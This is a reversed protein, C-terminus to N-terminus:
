ATESAPWEAAPLTVAGGTNPTQQEARDIQRRWAILCLAWVALLPVLSRRGQLGAKEGLNWAAHPLHHGRLWHIVAEKELFSQHNLSLDGELFAPLQLMTVPNDFRTPPQATTSVAILSVAVGYAALAVIVARTIRGAWSWLPALLLVFFPLSAGMQRPGFSWSGDWYFYSANLLLYYGAVIVAVAIIRRHQAARLGLLIGAPVLCLVPALPLLGRYRGILLTRLIAIHPYTIGMFGVKMGDFGVVSEYGLRFPAGFAVTDYALLLIAPLLAGGVVGAITTLFARRGGRWAAHLGPLFLIVAAIAAPYEVIVAWGGALGAVAPLLWERTPHSDMHHPANAARNTLEISVALVAVLCAGALAHGWLLTAYAWTPTGLGLVVALLAAGRHGAGLQMGIWAILLAGLTVPVAVASVTGVYSLWAISSPSV